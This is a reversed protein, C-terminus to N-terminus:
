CYNKLQILLIKRLLYFITKLIECYIMRIKAMIEVNEKLDIAYFHFYLIIIFVKRSNYIQIYPFDLERKDSLKRQQIYMYFRNLSMGMLCDTLLYSEQLCAVVAQMSGGGEMADSTGLPALEIQM